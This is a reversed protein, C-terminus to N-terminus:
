NENKCCDGLREFVPITDLPAPVTIRRNGAFVQGTAASKWNGAPLYVERERRGLAMVPAVLYRSGFMYQDDLEWCIEDEPFEYFMARLLPSGDTSAERMLEAIYPKLGERVDVYKRLIAYVDEGYSWLENPQGTHALGGGHSKDSLRPINHPRRDGHMRLVPCYTGFQFWRVLLEHFDSDNVDGDMFGGVDTNWWPIGALGMNLGACLQVRLTEFNSNVDGSWIVAGHKQGGAWTCRALNAIDKCGFAKMGDYFGKTYGLPFDSMAEAAPGTHYRYLDFDSSQYEPEAVDLWFGDIGYDLYHAKCKELLFEMAAPNTADLFYYKNMCQAQGRDARVLFGRAQLEDFYCSGRDVTPWVSVICQVGMAHLEDVMAKPDPWYEPDFRWEGDRTWHYFDIIIRSLPIGRRAYERAVSLVEEQTRYRLKCQWLGLASDPFAPARGTVETYNKVLERPTDGVTIWYDLEKASVAEWETLNKGFTARGYGPHNWLFGYGLGSLQFPVSIQSNRQALELMCGKLDLEPQQYQGMGFIREGKHSEFRARTCFSDSGMLAKYERAHILLPKAHPNLGNFDRAYERLIEAEDKYFALWGAKRDLRASIRGNRLIAANEDVTIEANAPHPETLAHDRGTFDTNVTARVRIGDTGWAEICLREGKFSALLKGPETTVYVGSKKAISM